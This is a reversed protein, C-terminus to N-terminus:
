TQLQGQLFVINGGAFSGFYNKSYVNNKNNNNNNNNRGHASV